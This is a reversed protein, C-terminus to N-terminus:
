KNILGYTKRLYNDINKQIASYAASKSFTNNSDGILFGKSVYEINV